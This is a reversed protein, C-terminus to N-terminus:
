RLGTALSGRSRSSESQLENLSRRATTSLTGGHRMHLLTLLFADRRQHDSGADHQTM